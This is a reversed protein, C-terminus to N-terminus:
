VGHRRVRRGRGEARQVDGGQSLLQLWGAWKNAAPGHKALHYLLTLAHTKGGGFQTALNFIANTETKEGSLRRIVESALSFLPLLQQLGGTLSGEALDLGHSRWDALLRQTPRQFLYKDLLVHVWISVGFPSKPILRPPVPATIM